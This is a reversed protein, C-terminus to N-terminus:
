IVERLIKRALYKRLIGAQDDGVGVAGVQMAFGGLMAQRRCRAFRHRHAKRHGGGLPDVPQDIRLPVALKLEDDHGPKADV